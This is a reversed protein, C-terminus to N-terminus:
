RGRGRVQLIQFNNFIFIVCFVAAFTFGLRWAVLATIVAAAISVRATWLLAQDNSIWHSLTHFMAQGGDLPYIPLMNFIFWIVNLLLMAGFFLSTAGAYQEPIVNMNLLMLVVLGLLALLATFAPGMLVIILSKGRTTPEHTCYGGFMILVIRITRKDCGAWRATLGHGLEHFVLSFFIVLALFGYEHLSYTEMVMLYVLGLFFLFGIEIRIPIGFASFPSWGGSQDMEPKFRYM